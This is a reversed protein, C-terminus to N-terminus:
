MQLNQKFDNLEKFDKQELLKRILHWHLNNHRLNGKIQHGQISGMSSAGMGQSSYAQSPM